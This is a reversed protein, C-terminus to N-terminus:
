MLDSTRLSDSVDDGPNVLDVLHERLDAGLVTAHDPVGVKDLSKLEAVQECAGDLGGLAGGVALFGTTGVGALVVGVTVVLVPHLVSERPLLLGVSLGLEAVAGDDAGGQVLVLALGNRREGSAVLHPTYHLRKKTSSHTHKRFNSNPRDSSSSSSSSSRGNGKSSSLLRSTRTYLNFKKGINEFKIDISLSNAQNCLM